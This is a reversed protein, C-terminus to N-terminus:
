PAAPVREHFLLDEAGPGLVNQHYNLEDDQEGFLLSVLGGPLRDRACFVWPQECGGDCSERSRAPKARGVKHGVVVGLLHLTVLPDQVRVYSVVGLM